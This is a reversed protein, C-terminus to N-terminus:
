VVEDAKPKAGPGAREAILEAKVEAAIDEFAEAAESLLEKGRQVLSLGTKVTAKALPKIASAAVPIIVPALILVGIGLLIPTGIKLGNDFLAM